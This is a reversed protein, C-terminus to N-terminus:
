SAPSASALLAQASEIIHVLMACENTLLPDPGSIAKSYQNFSRLIAKLRRQRIQQATIVSRTPSTVTAGM